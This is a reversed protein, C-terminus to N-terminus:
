IAIALVTWNNPLPAFSNLEVQCQNANTMVIEDPIIVKNEDTFVTISVYQYGLNHAVTLKGSSLDLNSFTQQYRTGSLLSPNIAGPAIKDATIAADAIKDTTVASEALQLSAIAGNSIKSGTVSNDALKASTIASDSVKDATISGDAIKSNTVAGDALKSSAIAGDAVKITTVSGDALKTASVASDALKAETVSADAIKDTVIAADTLKDTTVASDAIKLSVVSSDALKASTIADDILRMVFNVPDIDFFASDIKTSLPGPNDDSANAAVKADSATGYSWNGAGDTMVVQGMVGPTAPLTLTYPNPVDPAQLTILDTGSSQEKLKITRNFVVEGNFTARGQQTM